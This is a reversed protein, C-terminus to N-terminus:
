EFLDVTQGENEAKIEILLVKTHMASVRYVKTGVTWNENRKQGPNMPFGYSFYEGGPKPGKVYFQQRKLSNNKIKFAIYTTQCFYTSL